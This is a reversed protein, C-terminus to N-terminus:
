QGEPRPRLGISQVVTAAGQPSLTTGEPNCYFGSLTAASSPQAPPRQLFLVCESTGLNGRWWTVLGLSNQSSRPEAFAPIRDQLATWGPIIADADKPDTLPPGPSAESLRLGARPQKPDRDGWQAIEEVYRGDASRFLTRRPEEAFERLALTLRGGSAPLASWSGQPGAPPPTQCASLAALASALVCRRLVRSPFTSLRRRSSHIAHMMDCSIHYTQTQKKGSRTQRFVNWSLLLDYCAVLPSAM